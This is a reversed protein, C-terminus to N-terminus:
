FLALEKCAKLGKNLEPNRHKIELSELFDLNPYNRNRQIVKINERVALIQHEKIDVEVDGIAMLGVLDKWHECKKM